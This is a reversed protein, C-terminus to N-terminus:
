TKIDEKEAVAMVESITHFSGFILVCDDQASDARAQRWASIVDNFQKSNGDLHDALQAASAGRPGDLSACYWVDVKKKLCALTGAIDKDSLMGVVALLRGARPLVRLSSALYAAAQPNHAVDLITLPTQSICQFRGPLEAMRLGQHVAEEPVAFSLRNIAALATAANGLPIGPLPLTKLERVSDWWRWHQGNSQFWWDRDRAYLISGIDIAASDVTTPRDPEGVIVPRNRRFIGAKERAISARDTGLCDTHDLAISTIVALDADVINTADLRGGLGVELIVIDLSAQRFLELAALTGFEFYSLSMQGRGAEIVAMAASHDANTLERGLIRVRETYRLLHPSSYVGVKIGHALLIVELLRCTTGKGNTGGVSIVYPAPNLLNLTTAVHGARELGLDCTKDHLHEIYYLWSALPSSATPVPLHKM